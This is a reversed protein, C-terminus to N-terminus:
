SENRAFQGTDRSKNYLYGHQAEFVAEDMGSELDRIVDERNGAAEIICDLRHLVTFPLIVEGYKPPSYIGLLSDAISWIFAANNNSM